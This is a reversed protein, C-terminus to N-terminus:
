PFLLFVVFCRVHALHTTVHGDITENLVTISGWFESNLHNNQLHLPQVELPNPLQLLTVCSSPSPIYTWTRPTM